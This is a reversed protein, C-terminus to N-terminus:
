PPNITFNENLDFFNITLSTPPGFDIRRPFGDGTAIWIKVPQPIQTVTPAAQPTQSPTIKTVAFNASYGVCPVNEATGPGLFVVQSAQAFQDRYWYLNARDFFPLNGAQSARPGKPGAVWVTSGIKLISDVGEQLFRDPLQVAIYRNEQPVEVRYTRLKALADALSKLL